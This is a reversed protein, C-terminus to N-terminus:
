RPYCSFLHAAEYAFRYIGESHDVEAALLGYDRMIIEIDPADTRYEARIVGNGDVLFFAPDLKFSGDEQAKYFVSFGGGIVSKLQQEGGTAFHWVATDAGLGDAYAALAAADDQTPDISFTVLKLPVSSSIQPLRAQVQAMVPSTQACSGTCHTYTFNYLAIQGRLDESTFKAGTQDAFYFGPALTIRPLVTIPRATSFWIVGASLLGFIGFFLRWILMGSSKRPVSAAPVTAAM